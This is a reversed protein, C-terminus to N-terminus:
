ARPRSQFIEGGHVQLSADDGLELVNRHGDDAPRLLVQVLQDDHPVGLKAKLQQVVYGGPPVFMPHGNTNVVVNRTDSWQVETAQVEVAAPWLQARLARESQQLLWEILAATEREGLHSVLVVLPAPVHLVTGAATIGGGAIKAALDIATQKLDLDPKDPM